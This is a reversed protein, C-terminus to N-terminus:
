IIEFSNKPRFNRSCVNKFQFAAIKPRLKRRCLKKFASTQGFSQAAFTQLRMRRGFIRASFIQLGYIKLNAASVKRQLRKRISFASIKQWWIRSCFNAFANKQNFSQAEFLKLRIKQGFNEAAFM